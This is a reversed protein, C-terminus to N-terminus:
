HLRKKVRMVEAITRPRRKVRRLSRSRSRRRERPPLIEVNVFKFNGVRGACAGRWLGSANMAIIDIIDDKSFRLADRDYPSPLYDVVARAQGIFPGNYTATPEEAPPRSRSGTPAVQIVPAGPRLGGRLREASRSRIMHMKKNVSELKGRM